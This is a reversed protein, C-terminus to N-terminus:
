IDLIELRNFIKRPDFLNQSNILINKDFDVLLWGGDVVYKWRILKLAEDIRKLINQATKFHCSLFYSNNNKIIILNINM